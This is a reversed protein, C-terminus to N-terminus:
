DSDINMPNEQMNRYPANDMNVMSNTPLNPILM